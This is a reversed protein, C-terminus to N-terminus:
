MRERKILGVEKGSGTQMMLDDGVLLVSTVAVVAEQALKVRDVWGEPSSLLVSIIKLFDAKM